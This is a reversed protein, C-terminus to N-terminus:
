SLSGQYAFWIRSPGNYPKIYRMAGSMAATVAKVEKNGLKGLKGSCVPASLLQKEKDNLPDGGKMAYLAVAVMHKCLTDNQGLYCNCSGEDYRHASVFVHYQHGGHVTASYGVKDSKFNTIKGNEYLALARGWTPADTAFKIKDLGPAPM